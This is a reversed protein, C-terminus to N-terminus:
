DYPTEHIRNLAFFTSLFLLLCFCFIVLTRAVGSTILVPQLRTEAARQPSAAQASWGWPASTVSARPPEGSACRPTPETLAPPLRAQVGARGAPPCCGGHPMHEPDSPLAGARRLTTSGPSESSSAASRLRVSNILLSPEAYGKLTDTKTRKLSPMAHLFKELRFSLVVHRSAVAVLAPALSVATARWGAGAALM